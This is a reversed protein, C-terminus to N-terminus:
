FAYPPETRVHVINKFSVLWLRCQHDVRLSVSLSGEPLGVAELPFHEAINTEPDVRLMGTRGYAGWIAGDCTEALSWIDRGRLVGDQDDYRFHRTVELGEISVLGQEAISAWIVGRSDALLSMINNGPLSGARDPDHRLVRPQIGDHRVLGGRTGIWVYGFSDRALAEITPNPLAEASGIRNVMAPAQAWLPGAAGNLALWVVCLLFAARFATPVCYRYNAM